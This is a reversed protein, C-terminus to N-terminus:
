RLLATLLYVVLGFTASLYLGRMSARGEQSTQSRLLRSAFFVLPVDIFLIALWYNWHSEGWVAPVLTLLLVLGFLLGSLRLAWARGFRLALSRSARKQDGAMDMADGAIEEALDFTFAVLSFIWLLPNSARGVTAGGVLFTMGVSFAVILNGWLGNSKLKWNYLFGPIWVALSLGLVIPHIAWALVLAALALGCGLALAERPSLL